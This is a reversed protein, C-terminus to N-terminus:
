VLGGKDKIEKLLTNLVTAQSVATPLSPTRGEVVGNERNEIQYGEGGAAYVVRYNDNMYALRDHKPKAPALYETLLKKGMIGIEKQCYIM